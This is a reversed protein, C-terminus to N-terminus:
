LPNANNKKKLIFISGMLPFTVKGTIHPTHVLEWYGGKDPGVRRLIGKQKLGTLNKDIATTSIGIEKAMAKKSVYPSQAILMLIKKQNEALREALREVLRKESGKGIDDKAAFQPLRHFIARFFDDPVFTPERLGAAAM